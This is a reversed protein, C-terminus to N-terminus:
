QSPLRLSAGRDLSVVGTSGDAAVKALSTGSAVFLSAVPYSVGSPLSVKRAMAEKTM